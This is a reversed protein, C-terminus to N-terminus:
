GLDFQGRADMKVHLIRMVTIARDDVRCFIIHQEISLGRLGKSLDDRREGLDPFQVLREMAGILRRAYRDRQDEGWQRRSFRLTDRFDRRAESALDIRRNSETM